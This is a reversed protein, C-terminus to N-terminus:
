GRVYKAYQDTPSEAGNMVVGLLRERGLVELAAEIDPQPTADARVVFVTGDCMGSVTKADPLGLTPPLDLIVREYRAALQELVRRFGESALLESPNQPVGRVALVDLPSGPARQIARELPAGDVLVETLGADLRLGLSAAITPERLDCEVLLVKRGLQMASVAALSIASMTKGEEPLASTVAITRLPRTAALADIRARLSRFQEAIASEPQLLVIRRKNYSDGSEVREPASSERLRQFVSAAPAAADPQPAGFDSPAPAGAAEHLRQSRQEEAKRLADYVKGM